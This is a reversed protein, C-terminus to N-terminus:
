GVEDPRRLAAVGGRKVVKQGKGARRGEPVDGAELTREHGELTVALFRGGKPLALAGVICDDAETGPRMLIVGRGPGALEAVEDLACRLMKGRRSAVVVTPGTVPEVSVIEDGEGVRALRRGARTTESLDPTARFGYGRATAVLV